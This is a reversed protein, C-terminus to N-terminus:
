SPSSDVGFRQKLREVTHVWKEVRPKAASNQIGFLGKEKVANELPVAKIWRVRVFYEAADPDSKVSERHYEANLPLSAFPVLSGNPGEVKFDQIHTAESEVIGVGVYGRGGSANVWVRGGPELLGLSRTYWLGGGASVFGYKRADEWSRGLGDGFTAYYEGNWPLKERKEKVKEEVQDPDALWARSLYESDGDRFVRFFVANIAVGYEDALYTIIRESSDDLESAVLVLKHATNLEPVDDVGFRRCFSEDLSAASRAPHYKSQYASFINVIEEDKLTRVWSGYDLLQAM